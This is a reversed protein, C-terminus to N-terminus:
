VELADGVTGIVMVLSGVVMVLQTRGDEIIAPVVGRFQKIVM